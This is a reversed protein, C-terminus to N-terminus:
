QRDSDNKQEQKNESNIDSIAEELKKQQQQDGNIAALIAGTSLAQLIEQTM